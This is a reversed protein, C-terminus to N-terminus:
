NERWLLLEFKLEGGRLLSSSESQSFNVRAHTLVNLRRNNRSDMKTHAHSNFWHPPPTLPFSGYLEIASTPIFNCFNDNKVLGVRRIFDKWYYKEPKVSLETELYLLMSELIGFITKTSCVVFFLQGQISYELIIAIVAGSSFFYFKQFIVSVFIKKGRWLHFFTALSWM